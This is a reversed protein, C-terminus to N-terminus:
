IIIFEEVINEVINDVQYMKDKEVIAHKVCNKWSEANVLDLGEQLLVKVDAESRFKRISNLYRRRWLIIDQREILM